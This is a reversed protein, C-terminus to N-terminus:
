KLKRVKEDVSNRQNALNALDNTMTKILNCIRERNFSLNRKEENVYLEQEKLISDTYKEYLSNILEDLKEGEGVGLLVSFDKKSYKEPLPYNINNSYMKIYMDFTVYDDNMISKIFDLDYKKDILYTLISDYADYKNLYPSIDFYCGDKYEVRERNDGNIIANKRLGIVNKENFNFLDNKLTFYSNFKDLEVIFSDAENLEYRAM